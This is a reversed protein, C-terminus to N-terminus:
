VEHFSDDQGSSRACAQMWKGMRHALLQHGDVVLGHDVIREAGQHL